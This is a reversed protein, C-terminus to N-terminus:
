RKKENLGLEKIVLERLEERMVDRLQAFALAHDLDPAYGIPDPYPQHVRKKARSFTPCARAASDCLTIVLDFDQDAFENVSKSWQASIDIGIKALSDVALPSVFSPHTGASHVEIRDGLDHRLLGEAMQSRMSNGTCIVLVTPKSM